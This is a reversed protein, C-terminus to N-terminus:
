GGGRILPWVIDNILAGGLASGLAILIITWAKMSAKHERLEVMQECLVTFKVEFDNCREVVHELTKQTLAKFTADDQLFIIWDFKSRGKDGDFRDDPTM